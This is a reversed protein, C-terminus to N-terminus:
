AKDITVTLCEDYKPGIYLTGSNSYQIAYVRMWKGNWKVMYQTPIRSGYGTRPIRYAGPEKIRVPVRQTLYSDFGGPATASRAKTHVRAALTDFSGLLEGRMAMAVIDRCEAFRYLSSEAGTRTNVVRFWVPEKLDAIDSNVIAYDGTREIPTRGKLIDYM